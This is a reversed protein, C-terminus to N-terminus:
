IVKGSVRVSITWASKDYLNNRCEAKCNLVILSSLINYIQKSYWKVSPTSCKIDKYCRVFMTWRDYCLFLDYSFMKVEPSILQLIYLFAAPALLTSKHLTFALLPSLVRCFRRQRVTHLSPLIFHCFAGLFLQYFVWAKLTRSFISLVLILVDEKNCVYTLYISAIVIWSSIKNMLIGIVFECLSIM